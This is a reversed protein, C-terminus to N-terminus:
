KAQEERVPPESDQDNRAAPQKEPDMPGVGSPAPSNQNSSPPQPAPRVLFTIPFVNGHVDSYGMGRLNNAHGLLVSNFRPDSSDAKVIGGFPNSSVVVRENRDRDTVVLTKCIVVDANVFKTLKDKLVISLTLFLLPYVTWRERNSM